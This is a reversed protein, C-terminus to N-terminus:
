MDLAAAGQEVGCPLQDPHEVHGAVAIQRGALCQAQYAHHALAQFVAQDEGFMGVLVCLQDEVAGGIVEVARPGAQQHEILMPLHQGGVVPGVAQEATVRQLLVDLLQELQGQLLQEAMGPLLGEGELGGPAVAKM